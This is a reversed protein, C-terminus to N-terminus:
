PDMREEEPVPQGDPGVLAPLKATLTRPPQFGLADGLMQNIMSSLTVKAAYERAKELIDNDLTIYVRTKGEKVM